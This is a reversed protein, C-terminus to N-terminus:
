MLTLEFPRIFRNIKSYRLYAVIQGRSPGPQTGTNGGEWYGGLRVVGPVGSGWRALTGSQVGRHVRSWITDHPEFGDALDSLPRILPVNATHGLYIVRLYGPITSHNPM